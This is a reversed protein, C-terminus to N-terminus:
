SFAQRGWGGGKRGRLFDQRFVLGIKTCVTQETRQKVLWHLQLRKGALLCALVVGKLIDGCSPHESASNM